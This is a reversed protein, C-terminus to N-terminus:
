TVTTQHQDSCLHLSGSSSVSLKHGSGGGTMWMRGTTCSLRWPGSTILLTQSPGSAPSAQVASACLRWCVQLLVCLCGHLAGVDGVYQQQSYSLQQRGLCSSINWVAAMICDLVSHVVQSSKVAPAQIFHCVLLHVLQMLRTIHGALLHQYLRHVAAAGVTEGGCRLQHLANSNEFLGPQNLSNPKVCRVYHPEMTLLQSMLEGLQKKFQSGVSNFKFAARPAAAKAPTGDGDDPVQPCVATPCYLLSPSYLYQTCHLGYPLCGTCRCSVQMCPWSHAKPMMVCSSAEQACVCCLWAELVPSTCVVPGTGRVPDPAFLERVFATTSEQLLQQHEAVV